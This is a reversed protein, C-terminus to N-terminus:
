RPPRNVLMKNTKSNAPLLICYFPAFLHFPRRLEFIILQWGFRIRCPLRCHNDNGRTALHHIYCNMCGAHRCRKRTLNSYKYLGCSCPMRLASDCREFNARHWTSRSMRWAAADHNSSLVLFFFHFQISGASSVSLRILTFHQSHRHTSASSRSVDAIVERSVVQTITRIILPQELARRDFTDVKAKNYACLNM